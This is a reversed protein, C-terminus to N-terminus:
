SIREIEMLIGKGEGEGARIYEDSHNKTKVVENQIGIAAGYNKKSFLLM